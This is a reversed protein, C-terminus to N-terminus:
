VACFVCEAETVFDVLESNCIAFTSTQESICVFCMFANQLCFMSIGFILGSVVHLLYTPKVRDCAV